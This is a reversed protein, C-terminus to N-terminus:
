FISMERLAEGRVLYDQWASVEKHLPDTIIIFILSIQELLFVDFHRNLPHPLIFIPPEASSPSLDKSKRITAEHHPVPKVLRTLLNTQKKLPSDIKVFGGSNWTFIDTSSPPCFM